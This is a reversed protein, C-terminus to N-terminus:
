LKLRRRQLKPKDAMTEAGNGVQFLTEWQWGSISKLRTAPFRSAMEPAMCKESKAMEGDRTGMEPAM